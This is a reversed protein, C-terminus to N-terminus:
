ALWICLRWEQGSADLGWAGISGNNEDVMDDMGYSHLWGSLAEKSLEVRVAVIESHSNSRAIAARLKEGEIVERAAESGAIGMEDRRDELKQAAM